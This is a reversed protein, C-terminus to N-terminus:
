AVTRKSQKLSELHTLSTTTHQNHQFSPQINAYINDETVICSITQLACRTDSRAYAVGTSANWLEIENDIEDTPRRM